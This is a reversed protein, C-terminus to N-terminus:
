AGVLEGTRMTARYPALLFIQVVPAQGKRVQARAGIQWDVADGDKPELAKVAPGLKVDVYEGRTTEVRVVTTVGQNRQGSDQDVFDYESKTIKVVEGTVRLMIWERGM